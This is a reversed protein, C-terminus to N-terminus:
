ATVRERTQAKTPAPRGYNAMYTAKSPWGQSKRIREATEADVSAQREPSLDRGFLGLVKIAQIRHEEYAAPSTARFREIEADLDAQYQDGLARAVADRQAAESNV